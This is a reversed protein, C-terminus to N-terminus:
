DHSKKTGKNVADKMAKKAKEKEAGNEGSAKGASSSSRAKIESGNQGQLKKFADQASGAFSSVPVFTLVGGITAIILALRLRVVM